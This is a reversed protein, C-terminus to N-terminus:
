QKLVRRIIEALINKSYPKTIYGDAGLGLGNRIDAIEAKVTLMVIPLLAFEPRSRLKALIDFGSGDPLMVDLLLLDPRTQERLAKSLAKSCDAVRVSYGALKLRLDALAVQDPDDEVLQIVTEGPSKSLAPLNAVREAALYSGTRLLTAGAIVSAKALRLSDVDLLPPPSPVRGGSFTIDGLPEAARSAILGLDQLEALWEGILEDSFRRLCSHIVESHGQFEVAGLIRKYELPVSGSNKAWLAAMGAATLYYTRGM